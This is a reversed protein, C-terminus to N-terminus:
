KPKRQNQEAIAKNAAETTALGYVHSKTEEWAKVDELHKVVDAPAKRAVAENLQDEAAMTKEAQDM